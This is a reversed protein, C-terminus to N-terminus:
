TKKDTVGDLNKRERDAGLAHAVHEGKDVDSEEEISIHVRNRKLMDSPLVVDDIHTMRLGFYM